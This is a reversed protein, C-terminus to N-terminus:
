CIRIRGTGTTPCPREDRAAGSRKSGWKRGCGRCTNRITEIGHDERLKVLSRRSGMCPYIMYVEELARVNRRNSNRQEICKCYFVPRTVHLLECQRRIRLVPHITEVLEARM